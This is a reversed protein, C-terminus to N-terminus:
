KYLSVAVVFSTGRPAMSGALSEAQFYHIVEFSLAFSDASRFQLEVGGFVQQGIGSAAALGLQEDAWTHTFSVGGGIFPRIDVGSTTNPKTLM